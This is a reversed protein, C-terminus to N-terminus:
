RTLMPFTVAIAWAFALANALGGVFPHGTRRYAWRSFLGYVVFFALIVPVILILFFLKALNLAVAVALSVLFLLKTAAYAGRGAGEGRTAWEDALFWPLTGALLALVLPLRPTVPVFSTVFSDIAGGLAAISYLAVAAAAVVLAAIRVRGAPRAPASVDGAAPSWRRALVLGLATLLGYLGFHMALYDGVLVPLFDTPVKWLLLPTLVAPAVAVPWLTRWPLGAGRPPDSVRPLLRALPKALLVLGLILLGIFAGRDDVYGSGRRGFVTDLWALAERSSADSYLVAIHEVHPSFAARRASGDAFSGYTIGPEVPGGVALGVARLAEQKLRREFDGVVVLLNRPTQATVAPSFMSIAVTAAVAPDSQAYRVVIDSAMSHGLVALRGDGGPLAKAFATVRAVEDVLFTTTGAVRTIDGGLREGNRGHGLFDFTVAVYGNRALTVAFPQMLQQSGAFGHAIVVVPAPPAGAARYVTVPTPGVQTRTIELGATTALLQWLAVVIAVGAAVGLVLDFLSARRIM